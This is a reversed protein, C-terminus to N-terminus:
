RSTFCRIRREGVQTTNQLTCVAIRQSDPDVLWLRDGGVAFTAPRPEPRMGRAAPEAAFSRIVEVDPHDAPQNGRLVEVEAAQAASVLGTTLAAAAALAIARM